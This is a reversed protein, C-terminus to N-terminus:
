QNESLVKVKIKEGDAVAKSWFPTYSTKLTLYATTQKEIITMTDKSFGAFQLVLADTDVKPTIEITLSAFSVPKGSEPSINLTYDLITIDYSLSEGFPKLAKYYEQLQDINTDLYEELASQDFVVLASQDLIKDYITSKQLALTRPPMLSLLEKPPVTSSAVSTTASTVTTTTDGATRINKIAQTTIEPVGYITDYSPYGKFGVIKYTTSATISNVISKETPTNAYAADLTYIVGDVDFRTDKRLPVADTTKNIITIKKTKGTSTSTITVSDSVTGTNASNINVSSPSVVAPADFPNRVTGDESAEPVYVLSYTLSNKERGQLILPINQKIEFQTTKPTVTLITSHSLNHYVVLGMIVCAAVLLIYPTTKRQPANSYTQHPSSFRVSNYEQTSSSTYRKKSPPIIDSYM